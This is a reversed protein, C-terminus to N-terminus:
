KISSSTGGGINQMVEETLEKVQREMKTMLYDQIAELSSNYNQYFFVAVPYCVPIPLDLLVEDFNEPKKKKRGLWDTPHCFLAMIKHLNDDSGDKTYTSLDIYEGATLKRVDSVVRYYKGHHKFFQPLRKEIQEPHFIFDIAGKIKGLESLDIKRINSVDEDSLIAVLHLFREFECLATDEYEQEFSKDKIIQQIKIFDIIKVDSWKSPLSIQM